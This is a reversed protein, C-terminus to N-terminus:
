HLVFMRPRVIAVGSRDGGRISAVLDSPMVSVTADVFNKVDPSEKLWGRMRLRHQNGPRLVGAPIRLVRPDNSAAAQIAATTLDLATTTFPSVLTYGAPLASQPLPQTSVVEWAFGMRRFQSGCPSSRGSGRIVFADSRRAERQSFGDLAVVPIAIPDKQISSVSSSTVPSLYNRATLRVTAISAPPFAASPVTVIAVDASTANGLVAAFAVGETTNTLNTGAAIGAEGTAVLSVLEWTVIMDRGASGTSLTSDLTAGECVGVNAPAVIVATPSPPNPPPEVAVCATPVVGATVEVAVGFVKLVLSTQQNCQVAVLLRPVMSQLRRTLSPEITAGVGMTVRLLNHTIWACKAGVGLSEVNEFFKDCKGGEVPLLDRADDTFLADLNTGSNDFAVSLMEPAPPREVMAVSGKVFASTGTSARMTVPRVHIISGDVASVDHGEFVVLKRATLWACAPGSDMPTAIDFVSPAVISAEVDPAPSGFLGASASTLAVDCPATNELGVGQGATDTDSDFTILVTFSHFDEVASLMVPVPTRDPPPLRVVSVAIHQDSMTSLGSAKRLMVLPSASDFQADTSRTTFSVTGTFTLKERTIEADSPTFAALVVEQPVNWSSRTFLLDTHTITLNSQPAAVVIGVTVDAVPRALLTIVVPIRMSPEEFTDDFGDWELISVTSESVGVGPLDDEQVTLSLSPAQQTAYEPSFSSVTHAVTHTREQAEIDFNNTSAVTVTQPTDWTANTFTVVVPDLTLDSSSTACNVSVAGSYPKSELVVSYLATGGESMTGTAPPVFDIAVGAEDVDHFTLASPPVPVDHFRTDQTSLSFRVTHASNPEDVQDAAARVVVTQVDDWGAPTFLLTSPHITLTAAPQSSAAGLTTTIDVTVPSTPAAALSLALSVDTGETVSAPLSVSLRATEVFELAITTTSTHTDDNSAETSTVSLELTLTGVFTATVGVGVSSINASPLVWGSANTPVVNGNVSVVRIAATDVDTAGRLVVLLSESGDTDGPTVSTVPLPAEELQTSPAPAPQLVVTPVDAVANVLVEFVATASSNVANATEVATAVVALDIRGSFHAAPVLRVVARPINVLFTDHTASSDQSAVTLVGAVYVAQLTGTPVVLVTALQESTDDDVLSADITIDVETDEDCTTTNSSDVGLVAVVPPDAVPVVDLTVVHARSASLPAEEVDTETSTATLLVRLLGSLHQQPLVEVTMPTPTDAQLPVEYVGSDPRPLITGNAKVAAVSAAGQVAQITLTLEESEDAVRLEDITITAWNDEAVVVNTTNITFVPVDAVRGLESELTDVTVARQATADETATAQFVLTIAGALNTAALLRVEVPTAVGANFLSASLAYHQANDDWPIAAGSVEVAAIVGAEAPAFSVALSESGDQDTLVASVFVSFWEDELRTTQSQSILLQPPDPVPVVTTNVTVVAVAADGGVLETATAQLQVSLAGAFHENLHVVIADPATTPLVYSVHMASAGVTPTIAAGDWSVGAVNGDVAVTLALQLAESGDKDVLELTTVNIVVDHDELTTANAVTAAVTPTDARAAVAMSVTAVSHATVTSEPKHTLAVIDFSALGSFHQAPTVAVYSADSLSIEHVTANAALTPLGTLEGRATSAAEAEVSRFSGDGNDVAVDAFCSSAQCVIWLRLM